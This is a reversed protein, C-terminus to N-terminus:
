VPKWKFKNLDISALQREGAIENLPKGMMATIFATPTFEIKISSYALKV